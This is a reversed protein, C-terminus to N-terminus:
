QITRALRFGLNNNRADPSNAGRAASRCRGAINGWSGGRQLRYSGSIGGSPDTVTGPYVSFWDLCLEWVNGHMDYLGWMNAPYSGVKATAKSTDDGSSSGEGGNYWYRGVINMYPCNNTSTLDMGSNLSSATGSRCAYEWQSETPLDLTFLGTKARLKGIFSDTNVVINNPWDVTMDDTNAPNERIDYYSVREVPRSERHTTNNFLSPWNGVVREWQKQTVEFVGLYYDKTITVQHQTEYSERGLEAVPAGMTFTGAPIRRLVLKTTKYEDTWGNPPIANLYSIPYNTANPGASLDVVLYMDPAEPRASYFRYFRKTDDMALDCFGDTNTFILWVPTANSWPINLVDPTTEVRYIFGLSAPWELRITNSILSSANTLAPPFVPVGIIQLNNMFIAYNVLNVDPRNDPHGGCYMSIGTALAGHTINTSYTLNPVSTVSRVLDMQIGDALQTITVEVVAGPSYDTSITTGNVQFIDGNMVHILNAFQEGVGSFIDVGRGGGDWNYTFVFSLVDGVQLPSAFNRRANCWSGNADGMFRFSLGNTSNIDGGGGTTSDGLKAADNWCDWDSFGYGRNAGNTFSGAEYNGADDRALIEPSAAIGAVATLINLAYAISIRMNMNLVETFTSIYIFVDSFCSDERM